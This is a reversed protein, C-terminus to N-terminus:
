VGDVFMLKTVTAAQRIGIIAQYESSEYFRRAAAMDAFEVVVVRNFSWDGEAVEAEGGRVIFRGGYQEIIGPTQAAYEAYLDPDELALDAVIYAAM